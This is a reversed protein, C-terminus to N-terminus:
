VHALSENARALCRRVEDDTIQEFDRYWLGVAQFPRPTVACVVVDAEGRMADCTDAAAVPVAVVIRAARRARLAKVAALMTSGTALGDDVVIVTHDRVDLPPRAARYLRERRQLEQQESRVAEEVAAPALGLQRVTDQDLLCVGGSALVGITDDAHGPACLKRVVFVDLPADLMRAVEFAVPVGGLPLAVVRVGREGAYAKLAGALVQGAHARDRFVM